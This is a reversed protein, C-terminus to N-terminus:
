YLRRRLLSVDAQLLRPIPDLTGDDDDDEEDDSSM